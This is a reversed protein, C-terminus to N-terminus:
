QSALMTHFRHHTPAVQPSKGRGTALCLHRLPCAAGSTSTHYRNMLHDQWTTAECSQKAQPTSSVANSHRSNSSGDCRTGSLYNSLCAQSFSDSHASTPHHLQDGAPHFLQSHSLRLDSFKLPQSPRHSIAQPKHSSNTDDTLPFPLLIILLTHWFIFFSSHLISSIYIGQLYVWRIHESYDLINSYICFIITIGMCFIYKPPLRNRKTITKNKRERRWALIQSRQCRWM